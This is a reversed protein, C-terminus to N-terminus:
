DKIYGYQLLSNENLVEKSIYIYSDVKPKNDVYFEINRTLKTDDELEFTYNYNNIDIIKLKIFEEDYIIEEFISKNEINKKFESTIFNLQEINEIKIFCNKEYNYLCVKYDESIITEDNSIETILFYEKNQYKLSDILVFKKDNGLKLIIYENM